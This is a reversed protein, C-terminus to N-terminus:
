SHYVIVLKDIKQQCIPCKHQNPPQSMLEDACLFCLCLHGCSVNMKSPVNGICIACRSEYSDREIFTPSTSIRNIASNLQNLDIECIEGVINIRPKEDCNMRVKCKGNSTEKVVNSIKYFFDYVIVRDDSECMEFEYSIGKIMGWCNSLFNLKVKPHFDFPICCGFRTAIENLINQTSQLFRLGKKALYSAMKHTQQKFIKIKNTGPNPSFDSIVCIERIEQGWGV